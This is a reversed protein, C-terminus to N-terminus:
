QQLTKLTDDANETRHAQTGRSALSDLSVSQESRQGWCLAADVTLSRCM